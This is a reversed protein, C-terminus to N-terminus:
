LEDSRGGWVMGEDRLAKLELEPDPQEANLRALAEDMDEEDAVICAYFGRREDWVHDDHMRVYRKQAM